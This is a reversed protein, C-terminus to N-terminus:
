LVDCCDIVIFWCGEENLVNLWVIVRLSSFHILNRSVIITIDFNHLFSSFDLIFTKM